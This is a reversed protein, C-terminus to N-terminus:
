GDGFKLTIEGWEKFHIYNSIGWPYVYPTRLLFIDSKPLSKLTSIELSM